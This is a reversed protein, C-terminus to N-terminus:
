LRMYTAFFLLMYGIQVVRCVCILYPKLAVPLMFALGELLWAVGVLKMFAALMYAATKRQAQLSEVTVGGNERKLEARLRVIEEDRQQLVTMHQTCLSNVCSELHSALHEQPGRWNCGCPRNSCHMDFDSLIKLVMIDPAKLQGKSLSQQTIPCKNSKDLWTLIEERCFLHGYCTAVPDQVVDTCIACFFQRPIKVHDVFLESPIGM